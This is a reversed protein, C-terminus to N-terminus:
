IKEMAITWENSLVITGEYSNGPEVIVLDAQLDNVLQEHKMQDAFQPAWVFAIRLCRAIDENCPCEDFLSTYDTEFNTNRHVAFHDSARQNSGDKRWEYTLIIGTDKADSKAHAEAFASSGRLGHVTATFFNRIHSDGMMVITVQCKSNEMWAFPNLPIISCSNPVWERDFNDPSGQQSGDLIDDQTNCLPLSQNTAEHAESSNFHHYSGFRRPLSPLMTENSQYGWIWEGRSPSLCYNPELRVGGCTGQENEIVPEIIIKGDTAIGCHLNTTNALRYQDAACDIGLQKWRSWKNGHNSAPAESANLDHDHQHMVDPQLEKYEIDELAEESEYGGRMFLIGAILAFLVLPIVRSLIMKSSASSTSTSQSPSSPSLNNNTVSSETKPSGGSKTKTSLPLLEFEFTEGDM